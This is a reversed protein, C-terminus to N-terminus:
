PPPAEPLACPTGTGDRIRSVPGAISVTYVRGCADEGFSVLQAVSLGTRGDTSPRGPRVSRIASACHDGHLYRGRLTPLGPDRVVVGGTISCVGDSRHSRDLLPSAHRPVRCRAVGPTRIRGEFCVWGYNAGRRLGRSAPAFNIEERAGQGVDGIWLDGTSRDFSFRFPNRLGRAWIEPRAGARRVFPNSPPVSYPRSGSRRPDIRLLKGLLTSLRQGNGPPPSTSDNAGGGDGLGIWLLGARDFQLQGGNHNAARKHSQTIVLRRSAPDVVDPDQASRRYERVEIDGDRATVYAYVLGSAAHDPPFAISLLGREGGSAISGSVDLFPRSRIRRDAGVIRVTGGQEVVFLRGDGPPSVAYVPSDFRGVPELAPAAAAGAPALLGLVLLAVLRELGDTIRL